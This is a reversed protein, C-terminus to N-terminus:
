ETRETAPPLKITSLDLDEFLATAIKGFSCYRYLTAAEVLVRVTQVDLCIIPGDPTECRRILESLTM